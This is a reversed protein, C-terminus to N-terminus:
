PRANRGRRRPAIIQFWVYLFTFLASLGFWQFAYGYHKHVGSAPQPWQRQLGDATDALQLGSVPLLPLRMEQGLKALDINQRISGSEETSWDYLQSPPPALRVTIDVEGPPTPVTPVRTRDVFDRPAWGRQVLLVGAGGSLRLPTLVIFGARGNMPRNDLFYTHEAVWEGRLQARRHWLSAAPAQLGSADLTPLESQRAIAAELQNKQDARSLQWRGLAIGTVVVVVTVVTVWWQRTTAKM